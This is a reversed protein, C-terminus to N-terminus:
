RAGRSSALHAAGLSDNFVFEVGGLAAPQTMERLSIVVTPFQAIVVPHFGIVKQRPRLTHLLQRRMRM